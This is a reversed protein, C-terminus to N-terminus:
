SANQDHFGSKLRNYFSCYKKQKQKKQKEADLLSDTRWRIWSIILEDPAKVRFRFVGQVCYKYASAVRIREILRGDEPSCLPDFCGTIGAVPVPYGSRFVIHFLDAFLLFIRQENNDHVFIIQIDLLVLDMKMCVINRKGHVFNMQDFRQAVIRANVSCVSQFVIERDDTVVGAPFFKGFVIEVIRQVAQFASTMVIFKQMGGFILSCTKRDCLFSAANRFICQCTQLIQHFVASRIIETHQENMRGLQNGFFLQFHVVSDVIKQVAAAKVCQVEAATGILDPKVASGIKVVFQM